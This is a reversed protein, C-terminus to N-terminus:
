REVHACAPPEPSHILSISCMLVFLLLLLIAAVIGLTELTLVARPCSRLTGEGAGKIGEYSSILKPMEAASAKTVFANFTIMKFRMILSFLFAIMKDDDFCRMGESNTSYVMPDPVNINPKNLVSALFDVPRPKKESTYFHIFSVSDTTTVILLVDSFM